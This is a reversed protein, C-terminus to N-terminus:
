MLMIEELSPVDDAELRDFLSVKEPEHNSKALTITVEVRPEESYFKRTQNDVIQADDHFAVGNLADSIVKEINDNDPKKTPRLIGSKMEEKKKKSASKPIPFYAKLRYDLPTGQEFKIDGVQRKYELKVLNEYLVTQEPTRVSVFNGRKSFVPRGKAKPPGDIVFKVTM